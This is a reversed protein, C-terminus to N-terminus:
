RRPGEFAGGIEVGVEFFVLLGDAGKVTDRDADFFMNAHLTQIEISPKHAPHPPHRLFIGMNQTDQPRSPRHKVNPRRLRLRQHM